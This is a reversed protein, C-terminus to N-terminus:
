PMLQRNHVRMHGLYLSHSSGLWSLSDARWPVPLDDGAAGQGTKGEWLPVTNSQLRLSGQLRRGEGIRLRM